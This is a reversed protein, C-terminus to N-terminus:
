NNIASEHLWELLTWGTPLQAAQRSRCLCCSTRLLRPWSLDMKLYGHGMSCVPIGTLRQLIDRVTPSRVLAALITWDDWWCAAESLRRVALRTLVAATALSVSVTSGVIVKWAKSYDPPLTQTMQTSM